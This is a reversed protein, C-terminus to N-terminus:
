ELVLLPQGFEVSEGNAVHIHTITGSRDATIQNMVKMAEIILLVQGSEVRSGIAIFPPAEPQPAMYITGVMPSKVTGPHDGPRAAEVPAPASAVPMPAPVPPLPHALLQGAPERRIRISFDGQEIEVEALEKQRMLDSIKAVTQMDFGLKAM